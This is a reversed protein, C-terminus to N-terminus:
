GRSNRRPSRRPTRRRSSSCTRGRGSPRPRCCRREAAPPRRRRARSCRGARTPAISPGTSCARRTRAGHRSDLLGDVRRADRRGADDASRRRPARRRGRGLRGARGVRGSTYLPAAVEARSAITRRSTRSLHDADDREAAAIGFEDVHNTRLYRRRRPRVLAPAAGRSVRRAAEAARRRARGRASSPRRWARAGRGRRADSTEPGARRRPPAGALSSWCGRGSARDRTHRM